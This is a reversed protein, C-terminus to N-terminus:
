RDCAAACGADHDRPAELQRRLEEVDPRSAIAPRAALAASLHDRARASEGVAALIFALHLRVDPNEPAGAAAREAYALARRSDGILHWVWAVTDSVLATGQSAVYAREALPLAEAPRGRRVALHFALNNLAMVDGPRVEILRRYVAETREFEQRQELLAALLALGPAFGGDAAALEELTELARDTEGRNLRSEARLFAKLSDRAMGPQWLVDERRAAFHTPYETVPDIAEPEHEAESASGFPRCLPDGLVVTQWGLSPMAAYFAEALNRGDLYAPFLIEPRIASDLYPESVHASVGTVGERVLDGVLSEPSDAVFAAQDDWGAPQWDAPPAALTRADTSVFRGAIAGAAFRLGTARTRLAADGSGWSYYGIVAREDPVTPALGRRVDLLRERTALREGAAELWSDAVDRPAREDLVVAFAASGNAALSRDVLARAEEHSFGDLRTVLYIDTRERSYAEVPEGGGGAFYPNALPGEVPSRRGALARYLLTLESDVSATTGSRGLTGRVRIPLGKALVLYHIRDQARNKLLWAGIPGAIAREFEARDIVEDTTVDLSL